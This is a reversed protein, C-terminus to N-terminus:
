RLAGGIAVAWAWQSVGRVDRTGAGLVARQAEALARAPPEGGLVRQHFREFLGASARDEVDWLTAVVTRAGAALFPRALSLVGEGVEVPGRNTSCAALVVLPRRPLMSRRLRDVFLLGLPHDPDASLLLHSRDPRDEDVVAHGAYHIVDAGSLGALVADVTAGRDTLVRTRPYLRAVTAVEARAFPLRPPAGEVDAPAPDGIALVQRIEPPAEALARRFTSLSPALELIHTEALFRGDRPDILAAFPLEHLPGDPIIVISTASAVAARVPELLDTFLGTLTHALLRDDAASAREPTTLLRRVRGVRFQLDGAAVPREVFQIGDRTIAWLWLRDTETAYFLVATDPSLRAPLDAVPM